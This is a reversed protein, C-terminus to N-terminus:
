YASDQKSKDLLKDYPILLFMLFPRAKVPNNNWKLISYKDLM